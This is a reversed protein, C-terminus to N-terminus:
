VVSKRDINGGSGSRNEIVIRQGLSKGLQEATVRAAVDMLGGAATNVILRVPKTPYDQASAGIASMLTYATVSVVTAFRITPRDIM